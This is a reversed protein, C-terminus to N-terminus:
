VIAGVTMIILAILLFTVVVQALALQAGILGSSAIAANVTPLLLMVVLIAIIVGIFYGTASGKMTTKIANTKTELKNM